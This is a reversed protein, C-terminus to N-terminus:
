DVNQILLILSLIATAQAISNSLINGWDIDEDESGAAVIEEEKFDVNIVSGPMVEPYNKFFLFRKVTHKEGNPYTVSITSKDADDEFGGASEIYDKVSKGKEFIFNTRDTNSIDPSFADARKVAGRVTVLNNMKPIVIEDGEQLIVNITSNPKEMARKLDVVIYGVDDMNRFLSVGGVFAEETLGGAKNIVDLITSNDDVLFFTGPYKVEGAISVSRQLEFEPVTRVVIQDFPQLQFNGGGSVELNEDVSANAVLTRTKNNNQFEIRFIDIRNKAAELKLGGAQLIVDKLTLSPDYSFDKPNRVAGRITVFTEDFYVSQDYVNIEDGPMLDLNDASAPNDLANALDISIYSSNLQGPPKRVIYAFNTARETLGGSLYIADSVKLDTNNDLDYTGANRVAGSISFSNKSVFESRGRIILRDGRQLELDGVGSNLISQINIIEYRVTRRDDNLRVLYAIDLIADDKLVTKEILDSIKMNPSIAFAGANEVAGEINVANKVEETITSVEIRDGNKLEVGAGNNTKNLDINLIVLKDNEYRTITINKKLADVRLGGAFEILDDLDENELLEYRFSRNVAGSITVVKTAVPVVIFDNDRLYYDQSISPDQMFKYLDITQKSGDARILQIKRLTGIDSPGGAAALANIATNLSSINYNGVNNVDGSIFVNINRSASVKVEFNDPNFNYNNSFKAKVAEKADDLSLGSLYIRPLKNFKVYGDNTIPRNSNVETRGWIAVSINDGPGLIYKPGPQIFESKKYFKVGGERYLDHGYTRAAPLDEVEVVAVDNIFADLSESNDIQEQSTLTSPMTDQETETLIQQANEAKIEQVIREAAKQIELLEGPNNIDVNDPDFGEAILRTRVEEEDVGERELQERIAEESIQQSQAEFCLLCCFFAIFLYRFSM